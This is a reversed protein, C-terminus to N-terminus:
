PAQDTHELLRILEHNGKNVITMFSQDLAKTNKKTSNKLVEIISKLISKRSSDTISEKITTYLRNYRDVIQHSEVDSEDNSTEYQEDDENYLVQNDSKGFVFPSIGFAGILHYYTELSDRLKTDNFRQLRRILFMEYYELYYSVLTEIITRVGHESFQNEWDTSYRIFVRDIDKQYFNSLDELDPKCAISIKHIMELYDSMDFEPAIKYKDALLRKVDNKFFEEVKTEFDISDKQKYELLHQLKTITDKTSVFNYLTNQNNIYQNITNTPPPDIAPAPPPPRYVKHRIVTEKIEETLEIM